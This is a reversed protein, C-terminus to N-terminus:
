MIKDSPSVVRDGEGELLKLLKRNQEWIEDLRGRLELATMPRDLGLDDLTMAPDLVHQVQSKVKVMISLREEETLVRNTMNSANLPLSSAIRAIVQEAEELRTWFGIRTSNGMTTHLKDLHEERDSMRVGRLAGIAEFQRSRHTMWEVIQEPHCNTIQATSWWELYLQWATGLKGHMPYVDIGMKRLRDEDLDAEPSAFVLSNFVFAASPKRSNSYVIATFWGCVSEGAWEGTMAPICGRDKRGLIRSLQYGSLRRPLLGALLWVRSREGDKGGGLKRAARLISPFDKRRAAVVNIPDMCKPCKYRLACRIQSTEPSMTRSYLRAIYHPVHHLCDRFQSHKRALKDNQALIALVLKQKNLPTIGDSM